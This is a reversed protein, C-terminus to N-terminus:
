GACGGATDAGDSVVVLGALPLGALEAACRGFGGLRTQAGSFTLDDEADVRSAATSFRFAHVMFKDALTKM